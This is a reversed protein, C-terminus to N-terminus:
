ASHSLSVSHSSRVSHAFMITMCISRASKLSSLMASSINMSLLLAVAAEPNGVAGRGRPAGEENRDDVM